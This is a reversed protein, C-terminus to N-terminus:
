EEKQNNGRTYCKKDYIVQVIIVAFPKLVPAIGSIRLRVRNLPLPLRM